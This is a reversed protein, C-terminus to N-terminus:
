VDALGMSFTLDKSYRANGWVNKKRLQEEEFGGERGGVNRLQLDAVGAGEGNRLNLAESSGGVRLRFNQLKLQVDDVIM